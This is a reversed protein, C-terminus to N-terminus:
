ACDDNSPTAAVTFTGAGGSTAPFVGIQLAYTTGATASWSVHSRLALAGNGTRPANLGFWGDKDITTTGFFNCLPESQGQSGVTAASNDFAFTGFGAIVTPTACNDGAM